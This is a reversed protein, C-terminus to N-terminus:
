RLVKDFKRLENQYDKCFYYAISIRSPDEVGQPHLQTLYQIINASLFSKGAGPGGSIWLMPKERQVWAQFLPEKHVWDGTGPVRRSALGNYIDQPETMPKLVLRIKELQTRENENKDQKKQEGVALVLHSVQERVDNLTVQSEVAVINLQDIKRDSTTVVNLTLAGVMREESETLRRLEDLQAQIKEDKGLLVGKFYQGVRGHAILKASMGCITVLTTLIQTVIGRLEPSINQKAHVSLRTTFEKVETFLGIISDYSASVGHGANILYTVAGFVLSSPPFAMSAGGAALNGVLEVPKLAGGLVTFLTHRKERFDTFKSQQRDIEALLNDASTPKPISGDDLKKGAVEYYRTM